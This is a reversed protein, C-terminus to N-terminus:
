KGAVVEASDSKGLNDTWSIKVKDGATGTFACSLSPNTSVGGGWVASMVVSGNNEVIVEQIFHAPILNGASDKRTGTEMPHRILARVSILGDAVSARARISSM